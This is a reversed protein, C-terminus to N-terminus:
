DIKKYMDLRAKLMEPTEKLCYKIIGVTGAIM